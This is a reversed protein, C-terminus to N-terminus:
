ISNNLNITPNSSVAAKANVGDVEKILTSPTTKHHVGQTGVNVGM